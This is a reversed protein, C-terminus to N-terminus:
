RGGEVRTSAVRDEGGRASATASERRADLCRRAAVSPVRTESRARTRRSARSSRCSSSCCAAAAAPPLKAIGRRADLPDAWRAPQSAEARASSVDESAAAWAFFCAFVTRRPLLDDLFAYGLLASWLLNLSYFVLVRAPTNLLLGLSFTLDVQARPARGVRRGAGNPRAKRSSRRTPRPRAEVRTSSTGARVRGGVFGQIAVISWFHRPGTAVRAALDSLLPKEARALVWALTCRTESRSARRPM